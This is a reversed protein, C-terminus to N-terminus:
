GYCTHLGKLNPNTPRGLLILNERGVLGTDTARMGGSRQDQRRGRVGEGGGGGRAAAAGDRGAGGRGVGGRSVAASGM